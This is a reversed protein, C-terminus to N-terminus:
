IHILSLPFKIAFLSFHQWSSFLFQIFYPLEAQHENPPYHFIFASLPNWTGGIDHGTLFIAKAEVAYLLEDGSIGIPIRDLLYFRTLITIILIIILFFYKKIYKTM